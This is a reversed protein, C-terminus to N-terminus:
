KQAYVTESTHTHTQTYTDTHTHLSIQTCKMTCYHPKLPNHAKINTNGFVPFPKFYHLSLVCVFFPCKSRELCKSSFIFCVTSYWASYTNEHVISCVKTFCCFIFISLFAKQITKKNTQKKRKHIYTAM